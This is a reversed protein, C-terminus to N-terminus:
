LYLLLVLCLVGFAVASRALVNCGYALCHNSIITIFAVIWCCFCCGRWLCCYFLVLKCCCGITDFCQLAIRFTWKWAGRWTKLNSEKQWKWNNKSSKRRRCCCCCCSQKLFIDVWNIMKMEIPKIIRTVDCIRRNKLCRPDKVGNFWGLLSCCKLNM